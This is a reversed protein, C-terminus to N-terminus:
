DDRVRYIKWSLCVVRLINSKKKHRDLERIFKTWSFCSNKFSESLTWDYVFCLLTSLYYYDKYTHPYFSSDCCSRNRAPLNSYFEFKACFIKKIKKEQLIQVAFALWEYDIWHESEIQNNNNNNNSLRRSKNKYYM